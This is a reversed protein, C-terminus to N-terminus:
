ANMAVRYKVVNSVGNRAYVGYVLNAHAVIVDKLTVIIMQSKKSRELLIKLLRETNQADLHADIEDFLYYPSPKLSQLALLFTIAAITKEGGSLSTSERAQKNPFQIMLALGSEFINDPDEIELWASGLNDTMTAFIHRIDRDVKEFSEMFIKRKERDIDEIFKVIRNREMELQNRRSSMSRYGEIIQKYSNDALQNIKDKISQYEKLLNDLLSDSYSREDIDEYGLSELREQLGQENIIINDYEKRKLALERDISALQKSLRREKDTLDKIKEDYEKLEQLSNSSRDIGKQEEERAERLEKQAHELEKSSNNIMISRDKADKKLRILESKNHEFRKKINNYDNRANTLMTIIERYENEVTDLRRSYEVKVSELEKIEMAISHDDIKGIKSKLEEIEKVIANISSRLKDNDGELKARKGKYEELRAKINDMSARYRRIEERANKIYLEIENLMKQEELIKKNYEEIGNNIADFRRKKANIVDELMSLSDKLDDLGEALIILKSLDKMSSSTNLAIAELRPEFLKADLTVARYGREALRRAEIGDNAVKVDFILDILKRYRTDIVSALTDDEHKINLADIVELPIVKIKPLNMAKAKELIRIADSVKKVIIANLLRDAVIAIAKSYRSDYSIVDKLVGIIANDKDKLLMSVSYEENNSDKAAYLKADYRAVIKRAYDMVEDAEKLYSTLISRTDNLKALERKYEELVKVKDQRTDEAVKLEEDLKDIQEKLRDYKNDLSDINSIITNLLENNGKLKNDLTFYEKEKSKLLSELRDKEAKYENLKANLENLRSNINNLHDKLEFKEKFKVNADSDLKAIKEKVEVIKRSLMVNERIISAIRDGDEKIRKKNADIRAKLEEVKNILEAIKKNLEMKSKSANNVEEMVKSRADELRALEDRIGKLDREVREKEVEKSNIFEELEKKRAKIDKLMNIIKIANLRKIERELFRYRLQDNRELELEDIRNRVANMKALAVELKRDAEDLQKLAEEKKKDFYSLGIIDELIKRREESNLEAIRMVMGQQVNNLRNPSAFAVDLLDTITSKSVHKGNLLYISDGQEPMERTITVTNSDIPIGRDSNDFTVSVRIRRNRAQTNNDHLLSHLRDVRLLKPSNEGLAFSIADLINSKGSGNPGTICVLGKDLNIIKNTFGFSKFGLIEVKKIYVM